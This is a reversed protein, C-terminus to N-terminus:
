EVVLNLKKFDIKLEDKDTYQRHYSVIIRDLPINKQKDELFVTFNKEKATLLSQSFSGVLENNVYIGEAVKQEKSLKFIEAVLFALILLLVVIIIRLKKELM